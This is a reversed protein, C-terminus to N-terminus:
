GVPPMQQPPPLSSPFHSALAPPSVPIVGGRGVEEWGGCRRRERFNGGPYCRTLNGLECSPQPVQSPLVREKNSSGGGEWRMVREGRKNSVVERGQVRQPIFKNVVYVPSVFFLHPSISM